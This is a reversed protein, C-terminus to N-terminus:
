PESTEGLRRATEAADPEGRMRHLKEKFFWAGPYNPDIVLVRNLITLGEELRGDQARLAALVFLADVDNPNKDLHERVIAATDPRSWEHM